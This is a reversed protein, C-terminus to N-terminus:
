PLSDRLVPSRQPTIAPSQAPQPPQPQIQRSRRAAIVTLAILLGAMMFLKDSGFLVGSFQAAIAYQMLLLVLTPHAKGVPGIAKRVTRVGIILIPLLGILGLAMGAEILINHPYKGLGWYPDLYHKGWIPSDLFDRVADAQVTLRVLASRDLGEAGQLLLIMRQVGLNETPVILVGLGILPLLYILRSIRAGNYWFLLIALTVIPGRSGSQFIMPLTTLILLIMAIKQLGPKCYQLYVLGCILISLNAHGFAIPGLTELAQRGTDFNDDSGVVTRGILFNFYFLAQFFVGLMLVRRCFTRDDFEEDAALWVALCPFVSTLVFFRTSEFAGPLDEILWDHTLRVLYIAFFLLLWKDIYGRLPKAFGTAIVLLSFGFVMARFPHSITTGDVGFVGVLSAAIPYGLVVVAMLWAMMSRRLDSIPM